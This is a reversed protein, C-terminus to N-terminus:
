KRHLLLLSTDDKLLGPYKDVKGQLWRIRQKTTNLMNLRTQLWESNTRYRIDSWFDSIPVNPQKRDKKWSNSAQEIYHVGDTGIGLSKVKSTPICQHVQFFLSKYTIANQDYGTIGYALYPQKKGKEPEITYSKSNLAYWGDGLSFICTKHKTIIVGVITFLFYNKMVEYLNDSLTNGLVRLQALLDAHVQQWFATQKLYNSKNYIPERRSIHTQLSRLTLLAGIHAGVESNKVDDTQFGLEDAGTCGDTVIGITFDDTQLWRIADQNNIGKEQHLRGIVSGSTISFINKM